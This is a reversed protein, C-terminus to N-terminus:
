FISEIRLTANCNGIITGGVDNKAEVGFQVWSRFTTNPVATLDIYGPYFTAGNTAIWSLNTVDIPQEGDFAAGDNSFRVSPRFRCGASLESLQYAVRIKVMNATPMPPSLPHFIANTNNNTWVSTPGFMLAGPTRRLVDAAFTERTVGIVALVALLVFPYRLARM